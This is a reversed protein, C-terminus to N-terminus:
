AGVGTGYSPHPQQKLMMVSCAARSAMGEARQPHLEPSPSTHHHYHSAVGEMLSPARSRSGDYQREHADVEEQRARQDEDYAGSSNGNDNVGDDREMVEDVLREQQEDTLSPPQAGLQEALERRAAHSSVAAHQHQQHPQAYHQYASPDYLAYHSAQPQPVHYNHQQLAPSPTAATGRQTNNNSSSNAGARASHRAAVQKRRRARSERDREPEELGMKVLQAEIHQSKWEYAKRRGSMEEEYLRLIENYRNEEWRKYARLLAAEQSHVFTDSPVHKELEYPAPNHSVDRAPWQGHKLLMRHIKMQLAAKVQTKKNESLGDEGMYEIMIDEWMGNGKKGLWKRRTDWLRRLDAPTKDDLTVEEDPGDDVAAAQGAEGQQPAVPSYSDRRTSASQAAASSASNNRRAKAKRAPDRRVSASAQRTHTTPSLKPLPMSVDRRYSSLPTPPPPPAAHSSPHHHLMTPMSPALSRHAYSHSVASSGSVDARLLGLPNDIADNPLYYHDQSPDQPVSVSYSGFYPQPQPPPPPPEDHGPSTNIYSMMDPSADAITTQMPMSSSSSTTTFDPYSYM